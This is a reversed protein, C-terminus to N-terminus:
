VQEMSMQEPLATKGDLMDQYEQITQDFATLQDRYETLAQWASDAQVKMIRTFSAYVELVGTLLNELVSNETDLVSSFRLEVRDRLSTEKQADQFNEAVRGLVDQAPWNKRLVEGQSGNVQISANGGWDGQAFPTLNSVFM